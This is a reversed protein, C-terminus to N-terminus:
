AATAQRLQRTPAHRSSFHSMVSSLPDYIFLLYFFCSFKCMDRSAHQWTVKHSFKKKQCSDCLFAYKSVQLSSKATVAPSSAYM